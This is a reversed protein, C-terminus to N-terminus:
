DAQHFAELHTPKLIELPPKRLRHPSPSSLDTNEGKVEKLFSLAVENKKVLFHQSLFRFQM